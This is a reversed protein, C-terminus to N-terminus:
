AVSRLLAQGLLADDLVGVTGERWNWVRTICGRAGAAAPTDVLAAPEVRHIGSVEDVPCAARLEGHRILLL